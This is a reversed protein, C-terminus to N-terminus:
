TASLSLEEGTLAYYINQLQHVNPIPAFRSSGLATVSWGIEENYGIGWGKAELQVKFFPENFAFKDADYTNKTFGLRLLWYETVPIPKTFEDLWFSKTQNKNVHDYFWVRGAKQVEIIEMLGNRDVFNGIRLENTKM